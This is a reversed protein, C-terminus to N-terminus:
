IFSVFQDRRVIEIMEALKKYSKQYTIDGTSGAKFVGDGAPAVGTECFVALDVLLQEIRKKSGHLKPLIKQLIQVDLCNSSSWKARDAALEYDVAAFRLVEHMTRYGFEMHHKHMIGFIEVLPESLAKRKDALAADTHLILDPVPKQRAKRSLALFAQAAGEPAAAIESLGGAGAKLFDEADTPNVRFEIVNARDLVKPSFMYTTEDVNVTGTIFLNDPLALKAPVKSGQPSLLDDASTHLPIPLGSEMASLFDAFYREVHSLNMEDLILFYPREPHDMARIILELIPTSEYLPKGDKAPRLHNVYGLVNRNDTWDAGVPIMAFTTSGIDEGALWTAFLEAIKSKGTGSNGTLLVFPKSALATLFVGALAAVGKFGSAELDVQFQLADAFGFAERKKLNLFLIGRELSKSIHTKFINEDFDKGTFELPNEFSDNYYTAASSGNVNIRLSSDASRNVVMLGKRSTVSEALGTVAGRGERDFCLGVYVGDSTTQGPPLITIWPVKPFAGSGKSAIVTMPIGSYTAFNKEAWNKIEGLAKHAPECRVDDTMWPQDSIHYLRCFECLALYAEHLPPSNAEPRSTGNAVEILREMVSRLDAGLLDKSATALMPMNTPNTGLANCVSSVYFDNNRGIGKTCGSWENDLAFRTLREITETPFGLSDLKAKISAWENGINSATTKANFLKKQQKITISLINFIDTYIKRYELLQETLKAGIAALIVVRHTLPVEDDGNAGSKLVFSNESLQSCREWKSKLLRSLETPIRVNQPLASAKEEIEARLKHLDLYQM